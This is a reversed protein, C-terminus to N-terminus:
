KWNELSRRYQIVSIQTHTTRVLSVGPTVLEGNNGRGKGGKKQIETKSTIPGM